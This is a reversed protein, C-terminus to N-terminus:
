TLDSLADLSVVVRAATIVAVATNTVVATALATTITAAVALVVTTSVPLPHEEHTAYARAAEAVIRSPAVEPATVFDVAPVLRLPVVAQAVVPLGTEWSRLFGFFPPVHENM